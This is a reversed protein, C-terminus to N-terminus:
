SRSIPLSNGGRRSKPSGWPSSRPRPLRTIDTGEYWVAGSKAPTVGSITKLLTSKGAGNAGIISVISGGRVKLSVNKLAHISGYFTNIGKLDLM